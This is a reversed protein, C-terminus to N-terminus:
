EEEGEIIRNIKAVDELMSKILFDRSERSWFAAAAKSAVKQAFYEIRTIDSTRM